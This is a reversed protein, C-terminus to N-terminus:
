MLISALEPMALAIRTLSASLASLLEGARACGSRSAMIARFYRGARAARSCARATSVAAQHGMAAVGSSSRAAGQCAPAVQFAPDDAVNDYSPSATVRTTGGPPRLLEGLCGFVSHKFVLFGSHGAGGAAKRRPAEKHPWALRMPRTCRVRAVQFARRVEGSKVHNRDGPRRGTGAPVYGAM